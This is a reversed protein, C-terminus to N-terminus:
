YLLIDDAYRKWLSPLHAATSPDKLEFDEMFLNAVMLDIPSGM